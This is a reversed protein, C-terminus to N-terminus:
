GVMRSKRARPQGGRRQQLSRSGRRRPIRGRFRLGKAGPRVPRDARRSRESSQQYRGCKNASAVSDASDKNAKFTKIATDVDYTRVYTRAEMNMDIQDCSGDEKYLEYSKDRFITVYKCEDLQRCEDMALVTFSVFSPDAPNECNCQMESGTCANLQVPDPVWSIKMPTRRSCVGMGRGEFDVVNRTVMSATSSVTEKDTTKEYVRWRTSYRMTKCEAENFLEYDAKTSVTVYKCEIKDCKGETCIPLDKLKKNWIRCKEMARLAYVVFKPDSLENYDPPGLREGDNLVRGKDLAARGPDCFKKVGKLKFDGFNKALAKTDEPRQTPSIFSFTREYLRANEDYSLDDCGGDRFLKYTADSSVAVYKCESTLRCKRMAAFAFKTFLPDSPVTFEKVSPDMIASEGGDLKGRSIEGGASTCTHRTKNIKFDGTKEAVARTDADSSRMPVRGYVTPYELQDPIEKLLAPIYADNGKSDLVRLLTGRSQELLDPRGFVKIQDIPVDEGLDIVFGKPELDSRWHHAFNKKNGDVLLSPPYKKRYGKSDRDNTSCLRSAEPSGPRCVKKHLALNPNNASSDNKGYVEVEAVSFDPLSSSELVVYRGLVRAPTASAGLLADRSRPEGAGRLRVGGDSSFYPQNEGVAAVVDPAITSRGHYAAVALLASVCAAVVAYKTNSRTSPKEGRKVLPTEETSIM